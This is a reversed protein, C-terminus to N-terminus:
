CFEAAAVSPYRKVCFLLQKRINRDYGQQCPYEPDSQFQLNIILRVWLLFGEPINRFTKKHQLIDKRIEHGDALASPLYDSM